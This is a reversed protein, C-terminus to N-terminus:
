QLSIYKLPSFSPHLPWISFLYYQSYISSLFRCAMDGMTLIHTLETLQVARKGIIQLKFHRWQIMSDYCPKPFVKFIVHNLCLIKASTNERRRRVLSKKKQLHICCTKSSKAWKHTLVRLSVRHMQPIALIHWGASSNQPFHSFQGLATKSAGGWQATPCHAEHVDKFEKGPREEVSPTTFGASFFPPMTPLSLCLDGYCGWRGQWKRWRM